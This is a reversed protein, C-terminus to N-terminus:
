AQTKVGSPPSPTVPTGATGFGNSSSKISTNYADSGLRMSTKVDDADVAGSIMADLDDDSDGWAEGLMGACSKFGATAFILGAGGMYGGRYSSQSDEDSYDGDSFIADEDLSKEELCDKYDDILMGRIDIDAYVSTGNGNEDPWFDDIEDYNPEPIEEVTEKFQVVMTKYDKRL